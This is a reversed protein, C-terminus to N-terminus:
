LEFASCRSDFDKKFHNASAPSRQQIYGLRRRDNECVKTLVSLYEEFAAVPYPIGYASSVFSASESTVLPFRGHIGYKKLMKIFSEYYGGVQYFRKVAAERSLYGSHEDLVKQCNGRSTKGPFLEYHVKCEMMFAQVEGGVGEITSTIFEGLTFNKTYPNFDKRFVFHTLEHALDMLADYQNLDKNLFVVSTSEYSIEEPTGSTFKRTLTTDTLSGNGVKVIDLLGVGQAVAKDKAKKMLKLGTPSKKLQLFLNKINMRPDQSFQTWRKNAQFEGEMFLYEARVHFSIFLVVLIM